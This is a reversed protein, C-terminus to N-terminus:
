VRTFEMVWNVEWTAGGDASFAQEWRAATGPTPNPSDIVLAIVVACPPVSSRTLVSPWPVVNM